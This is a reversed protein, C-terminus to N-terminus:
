KKKQEIFKVLSQVDALSEIATYGDVIDMEFRKEVEVLLHILSVSDFGLDQIFSTHDLIEEREVVKAAVEIVIDKLTEKISDSM